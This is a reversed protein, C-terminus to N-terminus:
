IERSARQRQWRLTPVHPDRFDIAPIDNPIDNRSIQEASFWQRTTIRHNPTCGIPSVKRNLSGCSFGIPYLATAIVYM